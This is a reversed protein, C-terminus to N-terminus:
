PLAYFREQAVRTIQNLLTDKEGVIQFPVEYVTKGQEQHPYRPMASWMGTESKYLRINRLVISCKTEPDHIEVNYTAKLKGGAPTPYMNIIKFDM